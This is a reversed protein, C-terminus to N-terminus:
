HNCENIKWERSKSSSKLSIKSICTRKERRKRIKDKLEKEIDAADEIITRPDSTFEAAFSFCKELQTVNIREGTEFGYLIKDAYRKSIFFEIAKSDENDYFLNYIPGSLHVVFEGTSRDFKIASPG